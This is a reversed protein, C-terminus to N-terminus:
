PKDVFFEFRGQVIHGDASLVRYRVKYRGPQLDPTDLLLEREAGAKGGKAVVSDDGNLVSIESYQPDVGGGFVLKVTKVPPAVHEKAAPTSEVLFSHADAPLAAALLIGISLAVGAFRKM